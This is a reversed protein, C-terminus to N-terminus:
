DEEDEAYASEIRANCHDCYLRSDKWNIDHATVYWQPDRGLADDCEAIEKEVCAPCLVGDDETMYFIPYCGVSSFKRVLWEDDLRYSLINPNTPETKM